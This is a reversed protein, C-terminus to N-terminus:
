RQVVTVGVRVNNETGMLWIAKMSVVNLNGTPVSFAQTAVLFVGYDTASLQANGIYLFGTIGAPAQLQVMAGKEPAGPDVAQMLDYLNAPTNATPVVVSRMWPDVM